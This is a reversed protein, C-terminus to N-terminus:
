GKRSAASWKGMQKGGYKKRGISACLAASKGSDQCAKFRGGTGPADNSFGKEAIKKKRKMKGGPYQCAGEEDLMTVRADAEAKIRAIAAEFEAEKTKSTKAKKDTTSTDTRTATSQSKTTGKKSPGEGAVPAKSRLLGQDEPAEEPHNTPALTLTGGKLTFGASRARRARAQLKRLQNDDLGSEEKARKMAIKPDDTELATLAAAESRSIMITGGPKGPPTGGNGPGGGPRGPGANDPQAMSQSNPTVATQM